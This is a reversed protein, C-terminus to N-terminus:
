RSAGPDPAAPAPARSAARPKRLLLVLSTVLSVPTAIAALMMLGAFVFAPAERHPEGGAVASFLGLAVLLLPCVAASVLVALAKSRRAIRRGAILSVATTIVVVAGAFGLVFPVDGQQFVNV